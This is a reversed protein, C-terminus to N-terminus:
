GLQGAPLAHTITRLTLLTSRSAELSLTFSLSVCRQLNPCPPILEELKDSAQHIITVCSYYNVRLLLIDINPNENQSEADTLLLTLGWASPLSTRWSELEEDLGRISHLLQLVSGNRDGVSLFAGHIKSKIIILRIDVPFLASEFPTDSSTELLQNFLFDTTYGPPLSLDCHRDDIFSFRQTRLLFSDKDLTYCLWFLNRLHLETRTAGTSPPIHGGMDFLFRVSVSLYHAADDEEESFLALFVMMILAQLGEISPAEHSLLPFLVQLPSTYRRRYESARNPGYRLTNFFDFFALVCAKVAAPTQQLTFLCYVDKITERFLCSDIVPFILRLRSREYENVCQLLFEYDPYEPQIRINVSLLRPQNSTCALSTAMVVPDPTSNM